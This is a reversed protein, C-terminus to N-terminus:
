FEILLLVHYYRYSILLLRLPRSPGNRAALFVAGQSTMNVAAHDAGHALLCAVSPAGGALAAQLPWM